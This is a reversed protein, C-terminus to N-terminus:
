SGPAASARQSCNSIFFKTERDIVNRGDDLTIVVKLVITNKEPMDDMGLIQAILNMTSAKPEREGSEYRRISMQSIGTMESLERRSLNKAKRAAKMEQGTM